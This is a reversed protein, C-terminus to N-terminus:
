QLAAHRPALEQKAVYAKALEAKALGLYHAVDSSLQHAQPLLYEVMRMMAEIQEPSRPDFGDEEMEHPMTM